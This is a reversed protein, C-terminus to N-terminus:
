WLPLANLQDKIDQNFKVQDIDKVSRYTVIKQQRINPAAMISFNILFHQSLDIETINIDSLFQQKDPTIVVDLTHGKIHTPLDVHQELNYM